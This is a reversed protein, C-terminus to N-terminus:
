KSWTEALFDVFVRVKKSVLKSYPYVAYLGTEIPMFADLVTELRGQKLVNRLMFSPAMMIGSNNLAANILLRGTDAHLNGTVKVNFKKGQADQFFWTEPYQGRSYILCNHRALENPHKPRGHQNLYDASACLHFSCPMLKRAILSSDDLAGVRLAVDIGEEVLDVFRGTIRIDLELRPYTAQFCPLVEPLLSMALSEPASIRLRGQPDTQLLSVSQEAEHVESMIRRSYSWFVEGAQTLHLRRTTRQLLQVGLHQELATIQKSVVPKSIGLAQAAATFSGNEVVTSFTELYSLIAMNLLIWFCDNEM